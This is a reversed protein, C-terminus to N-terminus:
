LKDVPLKRNDTTILTNFEVYVKQLATILKPLSDMTFFDRNRKIGQKDTYRDKVKVNYFKHGAETEQEWVTVEVGKAYVEYIPRNM